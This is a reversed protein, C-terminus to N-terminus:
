GRRRRVLRMDVEGKGEVEGRPAVVGVEGKLVGEGVEVGRRKKVEVKAPVGREAVKVGKDEIFSGFFELSVVRVVEEVVKLVGAGGLRNVEELGSNELHDFVADRLEGRTLDFCDCAYLRGYRLARNYVRVGVNPDALGIHSVYAEMVNMDGM